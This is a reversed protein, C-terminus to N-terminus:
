NMHIQASGVLFPGDPPGRQHLSTFLFYESELITESLLPNFDLHGLSDKFACYTGFTLGDAPFKNSCANNHYHANIITIPTKFSCLM